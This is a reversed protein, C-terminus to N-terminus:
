VSSLVDTSRPDVSTSDKEVPHTDHPEDGPGRSADVDADGRGVLQNLGDAVTLLRQATRRVGAAVDATHEATRATANVDDAIASSRYAVTSM